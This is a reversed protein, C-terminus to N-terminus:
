GFFYESKLVDNLDLTGRPPMEPVDAGSAECEDKFVSLPDNQGYLEVFTERIVRHLTDTDAAHTGYDDHILALDTVGRKEMNLVTMRLHTADCSHVFNPSMGNRQAHKDIKDTHHGVRVQFRGALQTEIKVTEIERSHQWAVFGDATTWKIPQDIRNMATACKQLWSMAETAAVVVEGIAAWVLPTLWVAAKFNMGAGFHEKNKELITQFLYQTCSQRTAGYPLTMVPRKCLKRDIGFQLWKAAFILAESRDGDTISALPNNAHILWEKVKRETVLAVQAYIDAPADGPVLNTAAGGIPDRLMASFNQLGNCSGDLGIPLYSVYREIPVGVKELGLAEAYEFLFALFQYPKDANAWTDRYSLPDNAARIFEETRADVWAAREDYSAKDYGYRNAGHVKLWYFGRKGLPKGKSFKLLGKALDPGQPSFGATATYLRGRFDAYWVYWFEPHKNYEAALRMIRAVQFSKSVREREATYVASAEHKWDQFVAQQEPTMDEVKIGDVPCRSPKLPQSPPMGIRLSQNWVERVINLVQENVQWPVNQIRNISRMVKTWDNADVFEKPLTTKIMPTSQRLVPSYYGGQRIETWEDPPIICPLKEPYMFQKFTEHEEIWKLAEPSPHLETVPRAKARREVKIVLDTNTLIIDLLKTGADVREVPSWAQWVMKKNLEHTLVRHMFRYDQTHKRKFDDQITKYLAGHDRQFATFRIEDEVMRGITNAVEVPSSERTFSGFLARMAIFMAKAPDIQKLLGRARGLKGPGRHDMWTQLAETLPLIFEHMMRRSYDLEHGRGAEEAERQAKIYAEAGSDIMQQELELQREISM